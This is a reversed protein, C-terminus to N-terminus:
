DLRLLRSVGSCLSAAIRWNTLLAMMVSPWTISM